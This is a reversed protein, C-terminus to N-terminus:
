PHDGLLRKLSFSLPGGQRDVRGTAGSGPIAVAHVNSSDPVRLGLRTAQRAIRDPSSLQAIQLKLEGYSEQLRANENALQQMRFSTQSVLAQVTVVGFVLPGVLVTSAIFFPLRRRRPRSSPV